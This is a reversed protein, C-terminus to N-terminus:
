VGDMVVKEFCEIHIIVLKVYFIMLGQHIEYNDNKKCKICNFFCQLRM